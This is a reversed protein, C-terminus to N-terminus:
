SNCSTRLSYTKRGFAPDMLDDSQRPHDLRANPRSLQAIEAASITSEGSALAVANYAALSHWIPVPAGEHGDFRGAAIDLPVEIARAMNLLPSRRKMEAAIGSDEAPDGGLCARTMEGYEDLKHFDYWAGLDSLPVWASAATWRDPFSTAMALTM